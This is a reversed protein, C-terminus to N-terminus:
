EERLLAANFTEEAFDREGNVWGDDTTGFTEAFTPGNLADLYNKAAENDGALIRRTLEQANSM